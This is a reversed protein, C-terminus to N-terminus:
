LLWFNVRLENILSVNKLFKYSLPERNKIKVSKIYYDLGDKVLPIPFFVHKSSINNCDYDIEYENKLLIYRTDYLEPRASDTMKRRTNSDFRSM